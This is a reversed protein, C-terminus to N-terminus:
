INANNLLRSLPFHHKRYIHRRMHWNHYTAYMYFKINLILMHQSQLAIEHSAIVRPVDSYWLINHFIRLSFRNTWIVPEWEFNTCWDTNKRNLIINVCRKPPFTRAKGDFHIM